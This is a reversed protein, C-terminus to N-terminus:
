LAKIYSNENIRRQYRQPSQFSRKTYEPSYYNAGVANHNLKYPRIIMRGDM